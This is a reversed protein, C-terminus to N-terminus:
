NNFIKNWTNKGVVGDCTLGKVKQFQKVANYTKDGFEGDETGCNYGLCNLRYQLIANLYDKSGKKLTRLYPVNVKSFKGQSLWKPSRDTDMHVFSGYVGVRVLGMSYALNALEQQKVGTVWADIAYGKLHRSDSTGGQARNHAVTRYASNIHIGKKYYDRVYQAIACVVYDIKIYDSGDKCAVEYVKINPTINQQGNKKRSYVLMNSM